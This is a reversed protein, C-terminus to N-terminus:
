QKACSTESKLGNETNTCQHSWMKVANVPQLEPALAPRRTIPLNSTWISAGRPQSSSYTLTDKLLYWHIFTHTHTFTALINATSQLLVIYICTWKGDHKHISFVPFHKEKLTNYMNMHIYFINFTVSTFTQVLLFEETGSFVAGSSCASVDALKVWM